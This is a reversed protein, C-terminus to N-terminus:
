STGSLLALRDCIAGADSIIGDILEKVSTTRSIMGCIQGATATSNPFAELSRKLILARAYALEDTSGSEKQRQDWEETFQDKVVRVPRGTLLTTVTTNEESAKLIKQKYEPPAISEHTAIFRTGIQIGSAGLALAAVLGRGDGIGGAAVVPVKVADVVMPVLPLTAVQGTHGGAETGSAIIADAGEEEVRLAHRVTPVVPLVIVGHEKLLSVTPQRPDGRGTTVVSVGEKVVLEATKVFGTFPTINVGFPKDTLDRARRIEEVLQDGSTFASALVGLGGANSVAAVLTADTVHAMAGQLIPYRINLLDCLDTHFM